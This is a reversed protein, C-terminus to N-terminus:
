GIVSRDNYISDAREFIAKNESFCEAVESWNIVADFSQTTESKPSYRSSCLGLLYVKNWLSKSKQIIEKAEVMKAIQAPSFKQNAKAEVLIISNNSLVFVNDFTQKEFSKNQREIKGDIAFDRFLCLEYGTDIIKVRPDIALKKILLEQFLVINKECAHNLSSTFFIESRTIERLKKM